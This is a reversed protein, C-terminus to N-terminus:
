MHAPPLRSVLEPVTTIKLYSCLAMCDRVHTCTTNDPNVERNNCNMFREFAYEQVFEWCFILETERTRRNMHDLITTVTGYNTLDIPPILYIDTKPYNTPSYISVAEPRNDCETDLPRSMGCIICEEQEGPEFDNSVQVLNPKYGSEMVFNPPEPLEQEEEDVEEEETEDDKEDALWNMTSKQEERKKREEAKRKEKKM